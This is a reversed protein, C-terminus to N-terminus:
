APLGHGVSKGVLVFREFLMLTLNERTRLPLSFEGPRLPVFANPCDAEGYPCHPFALFVYDGCNVVLLDRSCLVAGVKPRSGSLYSRLTSQTPAYAISDFPSHRSLPKNSRVRCVWARTPYHQSRISAHPDNSRTVQKDQRPCVDTEETPRVSQHCRWEQVM